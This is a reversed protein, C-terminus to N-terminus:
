ERSLSFGPGRSPTTARIDAQAPMVISITDAGAAFHSNARKDGAGDQAIFAPM